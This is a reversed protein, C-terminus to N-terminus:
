SVFRLIYIIIMVIKMILIQKEISNKLRFVFLVVSQVKLISMARVVLCLLTLLQFRDLRGGRSM